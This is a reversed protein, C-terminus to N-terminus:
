GRKASAGVQAARLLANEARCPVGAWCLALPLSDTSLLTLLTLVKLANRFLVVRLFGFLSM